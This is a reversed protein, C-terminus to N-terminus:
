PWGGASYCGGWGCRRGGPRRSGTCRGRQAQLPPGCARCIHLSYMYRQWMAVPAHTLQDTSRLIHQQGPAAHWTSNAAARHDDAVIRVCSPWSCALAPLQRHPERPWLWAPSACVHLVQPDMQGIILKCRWARTCRGANRTHTGTQKRGVLAALTGWFTHGCPSPIGMTQRWLLLLSTAALAVMLCHSAASTTRLSLLPRFIRPAEHCFREHCFHEYFFRLLCLVFLMANCCPCHLVFLAVGCHLNPTIAPAHMCIIYM